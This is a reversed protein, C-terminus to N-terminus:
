MPTLSVFDSNHKDRGGDDGLYVGDITSQQSLSLMGDYHSRNHATTFSNVTNFLQM